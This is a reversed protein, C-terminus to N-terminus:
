RRPAQGMDIPHAAFFVAVRRAKPNGQGVRRYRRVVQNLEDALARMQESTVVVMDDSLGAADRWDMPWASQVDIWREHRNTLHRVYDRSLWGLAAEADDDDAFDSPFYSHYETTPEWLRRRGAGEGTDRVLAVEELRRLHYSTAGSNTGLEAALDTATARGLQRLAGLLRARLPHALVKLATADLRTSRPNETM